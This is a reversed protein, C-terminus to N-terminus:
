VKEGVTSAVDEARNVLEKAHQTESVKKFRDELNTALSNLGTKLDQELQRRQEGNWAVKRVEVFRSSLRNLVAWLDKELNDGATTQTSKTQEGQPQTGGTPTQQEMLIRRTM